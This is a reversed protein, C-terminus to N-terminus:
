KNNILINTYIKIKEKNKDSNAIDILIELAKLNEQSLAILAYKKREYKDTSKQALLLSSEGDGLKSAIKLYEDYEENLEINFLFKYEQNLNVLKTAVTVDGSEFAKKYMNISNYVDGSNEYYEGLKRFVPIYEMKELKDYIDKAKVWEDNEFYLNARIFELEKDFHPVQEILKIAEKRKNLTSIDSNQVLKIASRTHKYTKYLENYINMAEDLEGELELYQAKAFLADVNKEEIFPKLVKYSDVADYKDTLFKGLRLRESSTIDNKNYKIYLEEMQKYQELNKTMDIYIPYVTYNKLEYAKQYYNYAETFRKLNYLYSALFATAEINNQKAAKELKEIAEGSKNSFLDYRANRYEAYGFSVNEKDNYFKKLVEEDVLGNITEYIEPDNKDAAKELYKLTKDNDEEYIKVVADEVYDFAQNFYITNKFLYIIFVVLVFSFILIIEKFIKNNKM